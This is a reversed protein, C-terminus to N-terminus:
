VERKAYSSFLAALSTSKNSNYKYGHHCLSKITLIVGTDQGQGDHKICLFPKEHTTRRHCFSSM